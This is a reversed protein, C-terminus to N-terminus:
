GHRDRLLNSLKGQAIELENAKLACISLLSSLEYDNCLYADAALRIYTSHLPWTTLLFTMLWFIPTRVLSTKM